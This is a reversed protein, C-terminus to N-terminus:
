WEVWSPDPNVRVPTHREDTPGAIGVAGMGCNCSAAQATLVLGDPFTIYASRAWRIRMHTADPLETTQPESGNVSPHRVIVRHDEMIWLRAQPWSRGDSLVVAGVMEAVFRAEPARAVTFAM